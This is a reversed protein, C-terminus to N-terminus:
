SEPDTFDFEYAFSGLSVDTSTGCSFAGDPCRTNPGPGQAKLTYTAVLPATTQAM